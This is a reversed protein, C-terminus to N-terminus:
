EDSEGALTASEAADPHPGIRCLASLHCYECAGAAPDVRAEGALFAGILGAMQARWAERQRAWAHAADQPTSGPLAAVRPLLAPVAAVGCFRVERMTVNVTALGVVEDGLASLYALLQPHTPREGYWDPSGPRGSKYDLVLQGAATADIRDLRMRVRGGGLVLEKVAETALVTFPARTRELACLRAILQEARRCERVLAAPLAAFFDLQAEDGPRARRRGRHSQSTLAQAARAVCEEILRTLAAADLAALRTSDRLREWLLELAAHLLIGRQDMPVGPEASEPESAGLRLEAYAKFPCANQLTLARTGPLPTLPNWSSGRADEFSETLASRRLRQPLWLGAAAPAEPAPWPGVLATPLLELDKERAPVSLVLESTAARWARLLATAQSARAAESAQPIGAALQASRALFPDPAIPRPLVDASLSAGWIGDYRVVPDVLHPSVTVPADADHAGGPFRLALARLLELADTRGRPGVSAELEGFEELLDQWQLRAQQEAGGQALAGPWGLAELAAEFRECWRRPSLTGEGLRTAARRLQADLARGAGKLERPALQLLGLLERLTLSAVGRQQILLALAARQPASPREWQPATLWSRLAEVELAEGSLLALSRLAQAALPQEAFPPGGELSVLARDPAQARLSHAPDLAARVLSALRERTGSPGPLMVLLRADPQAELRRYCWAAIAELEAQTDPPRLLQLPALTRPAAGAAPSRTLAALRATIAEFGALLVPALALAEGAPVRAALEGMGAANLERCRAGFRRQAAHLLAAETGEPAANLAIHYDAALESAGQLAAALTGEDFFVTGGAAAHVAERWLVWEEAASLCRPWLQPAHAARRECERRLWGRPTLVDPSSWVAAGRALEAAAYALQVARMRARTPVLLTGGSRLHASLEPPLSFL